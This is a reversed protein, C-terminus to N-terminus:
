NKRKLAAEHEVSKYSLLEIVGQLEELIQKLLTESM